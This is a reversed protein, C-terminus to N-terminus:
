PVQLISSDCKLPLWRVNSCSWTDSQICYLLSSLQWFLWMSVTGTIVFFSSSLTAELHRSQALAPLVTPRYVFHGHSDSTWDRGVHSGRANWGLKECGLDPAPKRWLGELVVDANIICIKTRGLCRAGTFGSLQRATHCLPVALASLNEYSPNM